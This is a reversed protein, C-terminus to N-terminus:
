GQYFRVVDRGADKAQYMAADAWKVLDTQSAEHNLFMAVGISTTCHHEVTTSQEGPQAVTLLYPAALSARIKEAVAAAQETSRAKDADLESLMVVFEDGGIRGVTDVERVCASLRKAVEILLLDGVGHGLTDNLPKFNDLDLFMLAGYLGSRKSAAMAQSLRDNLLRRNPLGTLADFYALQRVQEELRKRETVDFQTGTFRVARGQANRTAQGRSQVWRWSGDKHRLRVLVDFAHDPNKFHRGMEHHFNDADDPNTIADWAKRQAPLEEATYGLMQAMGPSHYLEGTLLDLDWIGEQSGSVALALRQESVRLADASRRKEIAISALSASQEILGIDDADPAHPQRHYIAFTGLVQGGAARIPQSWCAGLGAQAALEKYPVWYPHTQIDEVIVREGTFAATGCSGVGLGTEIGDIAANYFDPLDPAAGQSLHKGDSSLLLVSCITAPKVEQVGLVLAKLIHELPADGALLELTQRRFQELKQVLKQETIDKANGEFGIVAGTRDKMAVANSSHWRWSGDLHTVRYEINSQREGTKFLDQLAALCTALDDPHVFPTFAHGLVQDQRHGLMETWAYSVFTFVGQADLTYIIDHSSEILQRHKEESLRLAQEALKRETIDHVISLLLTRGQSQIPNSYVEVDRLVGSALRHQFLFYRRQEHLAHQREAAILEPAMPNIDSIRMALLQERSYGYYAEAAPNADEIKGSDPDLLMMVSANSEVFQRLRQESARLADEVGKRETIDLNFGQFYQFEGHEDFVPLTHCHFDRYVGDHRCLRFTNDHETKTEWHKLWVETAAPLDDPHVVSTWLEATLGGIPDQGTFDFWQKNIYTYRTGDFVWLHIKTDDLITTLRDQSLELEATREEVRRELSANVQHVVRFQQALTDAMVKFNEILRQIQLIQSDPWTMDQKGAALELPLDHTITGLRELTSTTRRALWEALALAALLIAFLLLLRGAYRDYLQMQFPAVPQELVLQWGGIDGVTTQAVYFSSKWQDSISTNPPLVPVWLNINGGVLSLKGPGQILPEMPKQNKRNSLIVQGKKDVLTYLLTDGATLIDLQKRIQDTRLVSNVYGAYEGARTVPALLIAIPEPTNIRGMVVEALMPQGSKKLEAIYPREPFKKGINSQGSEDLRPAYASIVSETDRM